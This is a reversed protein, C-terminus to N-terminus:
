QDHRLKAALLLLVLMGTIVGAALVASPAFVQASSVVNAAIV